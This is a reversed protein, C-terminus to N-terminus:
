ENYINDCFILHLLMLQFTSIKGIVSIDMMLIIIFVKGLLIFVHLMKLFDAIYMYYKSCIKPFKHVQYVQVDCKIYNKRM